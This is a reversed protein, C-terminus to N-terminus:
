RPYTDLHYRPAEAKSEGVQYPFCIEVTGDCAYIVEEASRILLGNPNTADAHYRDKVNPTIPYLLTKFGAYKTFDDWTNHGHHLVQFLDFSLYEPDYADMWFKMNGTGSDGANLFTQGEIRFLYAVSSDNFSNGHEEPLLQEPSMLIEMSIDSFYYIQGTQPRYIAPTKGDPTKLLTIAQYERKIEGYVGPDMDKVEDSPENFYFAEVRIRDAWAPNKNFGNLVHFHDNHMHTVIWADIIVPGDLENHQELLELLAPLEGEVGGDSVIFHGNKLKLAFANGGDYTEMMYLKTSAGEIVDQSYNDFLHPSLPLDFCASIFTENDYCIHTVSLVLDDKQFTATYVSDNLGKEGNDYIREFGHKELLELYAYYDPDETGQVSLTYNGVGKDCVPLLTTGEVLLAPVEDFLDMTSWEKSVPYDTGLAEYIPALVRDLLAKTKADTAEDRHLLVADTLFTASQATGYCNIDGDEMAYVAYPRITFDTRALREDLDTIVFTAVLQNEESERLIAATVNAVEYTKGRYLYSDTFLNLSGDAPIAKTPCILAGLSVQDKTIGEPLTLTLTWRPGYHGEAKVEYDTIVPPNVEYVPLPDKSFPMPVPFADARLAWHNQFDLTTNYYAEYGKFLNEKLRGNGKVLSKSAAANVGILVECSDESAWCNVVDLASETKNLTCGGAIAGIVDGKNNDLAFTSVKGLNLCSDITSTADNRGLIGGIHSTNTTECSSHIRGTNLCYSLFVTQNNGNGVIGGGYRMALTVSGDFWCYEVNVEGTTGVGFIGGAHHDGCVVTANSYIKTFTGSGAACVSAATSGTSEFYSNKLSFDTIHASETASAFLAISSGGKAYVGSISHGQGDFTGAFGAVPTWAIAPAAAGWTTSDGENLTIDAGLKVTKNAFKESKAVQAFGLLESATTLTFESKSADYWSSDPTPADEAFTGVIGLPLLLILALM